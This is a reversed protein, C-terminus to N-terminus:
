EKLYNFAYTVGNVTVQNLTDESPDVIQLTYFVGENWYRDLSQSMMRGAETHYVCTERFERNREGFEVLTMPTKLTMEQYLRISTELAFIPDGILGYLIDADRLVKDLLTVPEIVFPYETCRIANCIQDLEKQSFNLTVNSHSKMWKIAREINERDSLQGGSHNFDHWLGAINSKHIERIKEDIDDYSNNSLEYSMLRGALLSILQCHTTNHYAPEDFYDLHKPNDLSFRHTNLRIVKDEHIFRGDVMESKDRCWMEGSEINKYLYALECTRELRLNHDPTMLVEYRGKTKCHIIRDDKNFM